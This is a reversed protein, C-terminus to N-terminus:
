VTPKVHGVIMKEGITRLPSQTGTPAPRHHHLVEALAIHARILARKRVQCAHHDICRYGSGPLDTPELGRDPTKHGAAKRCICCRIM